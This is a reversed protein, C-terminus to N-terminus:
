VFSKEFTQLEDSEINLYKFELRLEGDEGRSWKLTEEELRYRKLKEFDDFILKVRRLIKARVLPDNVDFIMGAGLGIEQQFANENDCDSLSSSITKSDNEDGSVLAARGAKNAGLPLRLGTAM